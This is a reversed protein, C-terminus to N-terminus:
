LAVGEKELGSIGDELAKDVDERWQGRLDVINYLAREAEIGKIPVEPMRQALVNDSVANYVAEAVLIEGGRALGTLRSAINVAEGVATYDMRLHSGMNGVIVTGSDLGIGVNIPTLNRAARSANVRETAKKVAVAAKIGQELHRDSQIPSGFVGMVADGIFKDITGEFRFITETILTFYRNLLEVIEEPSMSSSFATFGRIDAFFVTIVRREGGLRIREPDKLIEDAVDPSVYRNFVGKLIEKKKLESAMRNFSKVLDGLEDKRIEPIRYDLNGMTIEQTGKFLRFVPRLLGSAIPISVISVALIGLAALVAVSRIAIHVRNQIYEKSFSVAAYGVTTGQFIVPAVFSLDDRGESILWPPPGQSDLADKITKKDIFVVPDNGQRGGQAETIFNDNLIYADRIGPYKLVNKVLLGMALTDKQLLPIKSHGAFEDTITGALSRMQAELSAKQHAIMIFGLLFATLFLLGSLIVALKIKIGIKM